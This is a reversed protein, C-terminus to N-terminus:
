QNSYQFIFYWDKYFFMFALCELTPWLLTLLTSPRPLLRWIHQVKEAKGDSKGELAKDISGRRRESEKMQTEKEWTWDRNRLRGVFFRESAMDNQIHCANTLHLESVSLSALIWVLHHKVTRWQGLCHDVRPFSSSAATLYLYIWNYILFPRVLFFFLSFSFLCFSLSLLFTFFSSPISLLSVILIFSLYFSFCLFTHYM